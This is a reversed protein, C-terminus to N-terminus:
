LFRSLLLLNILTLSVVYVVFNGAFFLVHWLIKRVGSSNLRFRTSPYALYVLVPLIYTTGDYMLQLIIEETYEWVGARLQLIFIALVVLALTLSLLLNKALLKFNYIM